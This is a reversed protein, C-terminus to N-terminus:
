PQVQARNRERHRSAATWGSEEDRTRFALALASSPSLLRRAQAAHTAAREAARPDLQMGRRLIDSLMPAPTTPLPAPYTM